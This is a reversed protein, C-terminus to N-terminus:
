REGCDKVVWGLWGVKMREEDEDEDEDDVKKRRWKM